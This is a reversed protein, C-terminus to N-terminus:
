RKVRYLELTYQYLPFVAVRNQPRYSAPALKRWLATHVKDRSTLIYDAKLLEVPSKDNALKKFVPATKLPTNLCFGPAWDGLILAEPKGDAKTIRVIEQGIEQTRYGHTAFYNGISGLAILLFLVLAAPMLARARPIRPILLTGAALLSGVLLGGGTEYSRWGQAFLIPQTWHLGLLLAAVGLGIRGSTRKLIAPIRWLTYAALACLGPWFVMYYRTPAYKSLCIWLIGLAAWLYLLRAAQRRPFSFLGLIVLIALIPNRTFLRNMLGNQYGIWARRVMWGAQVVSKPRAQEMAYHRNMHVIEAQHPRFWLFFYLLLALGMGLFYPLLRKYIGGGGGTIPSDLIVDPSSPTSEREQEEMVPPPSPKRFPLLAVLIPLPAFLLFSTKWAVLSAALLGSLFLMGRGGICWAWFAICAICVAPSEMMGLRNYFLYLPDLGLFVTATLAIRRGLKRRLGDYFFVLALLGFVVSISRAQILGVGFLSFVARQIADLIPSLNVNNFEDLRAQGFLVANRANHNYFGEDTWIGTGWCLDPHADADLFLVRPLVLVLALLVLVWLSKHKM